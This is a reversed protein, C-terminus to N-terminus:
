SKFTTKPPCGKGACTAVLTAGPPVGTVTLRTLRTSKATAHAFFALTITLKAASPPTTTGPPPPPSGQDLKVLFSRRAPAADTNGAADPARAALEHIGPTLGSLTMPNAGASWAGGDFSCEFTAGNEDSLLAFSVSTSTVALGSPPGGAIRAGPPTRDILFSFS